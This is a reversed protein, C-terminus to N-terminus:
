PRQVSCGAACRRDVAVVGVGSAPEFNLLEVPLAGGVLGHLQRLAEAVAAVFQEATPRRPGRSRRLRPRAATLRRRL